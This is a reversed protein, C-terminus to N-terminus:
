VFMDQMLGKKTKALNELKQNELKIKKDILKFINAIRNQNSESHVLIEQNLINEAKLGLQASGTVKRKLQKNIYKSNIQYHLYLSNINKTKILYVHDGLIYKNDEDIFGTKGIILGGGIDDKPMILDGYSLMDLNCFTPKNKLIYGDSNVTGMDMIYYLGNEDVQDVKSKGTLCTCYNSLINKPENSNSNFFSDLTCMKFLKLDEIKKSQLEIKKDLLDFLSVIKKQEERTPMKIKLKRIKDLAIFKQTGGDQNNAFQKNISPTHLYHILYDNKILGNEKILAVNKIAFDDRDIRVPKGITGIMGFLIDGIDVKSRQNIKDFDEQKLYSVNSFDLTGMDTLNKSTILPYGNEVYKPSDHTGDRVDSESQLIYEEWEDGFNNFRLKPIM